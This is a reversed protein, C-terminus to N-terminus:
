RGDFSKLAISRSKHFNRSLFFIQSLLALLVTALGFLDLDISAELSM